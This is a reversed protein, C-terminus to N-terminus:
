AVSRERRPRLQGNHSRRPVSHDHQEFTGHGVCVRNELLDVSVKSDTGSLSRKQEACLRTKHRYVCPSSTGQAFNNAEFDDRVAFEFAQGADRTGCWCRKLRLCQSLDLGPEKTAEVKLNDRPVACCPHARTVDLFRPVVGRMSVTCFLKAVESPTKFLLDAATEPKPHTVKTTTSGGHEARHEDWTDCQM